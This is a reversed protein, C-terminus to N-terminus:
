LHRQAEEKRDVVVLRLAIEALHEDVRVLAAVRTDDVREGRVRRHLGREVVGARQELPDLRMAGIVERPEPPEDVVTLDLQEAAAEVLRHERDEGFAVGDSLDDHHGIVELTVEARSGLAHPEGLAHPLGAERAGDDVRAHAEGQEVVAM